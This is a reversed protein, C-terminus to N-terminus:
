KDLTKTIEGLAPWKVTVAMKDVNIYTQILFFVQMVLRNGERLKPGLVGNSNAKNQIYHHKM